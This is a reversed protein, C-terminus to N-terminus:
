NKDVGKKLNKVIKKLLIIEHGTRGCVTVIKHYCCRKVYHLLFIPSGYFCQEGMRRFCGSMFRM